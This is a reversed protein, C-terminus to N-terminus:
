ENDSYLAPFSIHAGKTIEFYKTCAVQYHGNKALEVVDRVSKDNLGHKYLMSQLNDKGFHKFPCGHHDGTSPPNSTIIRM